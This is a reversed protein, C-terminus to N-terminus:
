KLQLGLGKCLQTIQPKRALVETNRENEEACEALKEYLKIFQARIIALKDNTAGRIEDPTISESIRKLIPDEPLRIRGWYADSSVCRKRYVAFVEGADVKKRGVAANLIALTKKRIDAITPCKSSTKILEGIAAATIEDPLDQLYLYYVKMKDESVFDYSEALIALAKTLEKM